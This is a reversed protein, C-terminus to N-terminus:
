KKNSDVFSRLKVSKYDSSVEYSHWMKNMVFRRTKSVKDKNNFCINRTHGKLVYDYKPQYYCISPNSTVGTFDNTGRVIMKDFDVGKKKRSYDVPELYSVYPSTWRNTLFEKRKSYDEFKLAHNMNKTSLELRPISKSKDEHMTNTQNHLITSDMNIM